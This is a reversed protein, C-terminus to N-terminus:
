FDLVSKTKDKIKNVVKYKNREQKIWEWVENDLPIDDLSNGIKMWVSIPIYRFTKGDKETIRVYQKEGYFINLIYRNIWYAKYINQCYGPILEEIKNFISEHEWRIPLFASYRKLDRKTM